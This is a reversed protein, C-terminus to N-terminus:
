RDNTTTATVLTRTEDNCDDACEIRLEAPLPGLQLLDTVASNRCFSCPTREYVWLLLDILGPSPMARHLGLIDLGLHHVIEDTANEPLLAMIRAYGDPLPNMELLAIGDLSGAALLEGALAAVADDAFRELGEIAAARVAVDPSRVYPLLAASGGPADVRRFVLLMAEQRRPDSEAAILELLRRLDAESASRGFRAAIGAKRRGGSGIEALFASLPKAPVTRHPVSVEDRLVEDAFRQLAEDSLAAHRLAAEAGVERIQMGIADDVTFDPETLLRQGLIRGVHLAGEAGDLAVIDMALLWPDQFERLEFKQYLASRANADGDVAMVRLMRALQDTDHFDTAHTFAVLVAAYYPQPDPLLALMSMMWTGRSGESQWDYSYSHLCADLLLGEVGGDGHARIHAMARGQGKRLADAFEARSLTTAM